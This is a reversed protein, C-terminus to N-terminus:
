PVVDVSCRSVIQRPDRFAILSVEVIHAEPTVTATTVRCTVTLPRTADAGVHLTVRAVTRCAATVGDYVTVPVTRRRCKLSMGNM